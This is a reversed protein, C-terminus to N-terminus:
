RCSARFPATNGELSVTIKPQELAPMEGNYFWEEDAKAKLDDEGVTVGDEAASCGMLIMSLLAFRTWM